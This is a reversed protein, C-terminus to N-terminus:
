QEIPLMINNDDHQVLFAYIANGTWVFDSSKFVGTTDLVRKKQRKYFIRLNQDRYLEQMTRHFDLILLQLLIQKQDVLQYM